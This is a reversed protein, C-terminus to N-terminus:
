AARPEAPGLRCGAYRPRANWGAGAHPASRAHRGAYRGAHWAYCRRAYRRSTPRQGPDPPGPHALGQRWGAHGGRRGTFVESLEKGDPGGGRRARATTEDVAPLRVAPDASPATDIGDIESLLSKLQDDTLDSLGGGFSVGSKARAAVPERTTAATTENAVTALTASPEVTTGAASQGATATPATPESRQWRAVALGCVVILSAAAALAWNGAVLRSRRAVRPKPLAAVIAAVNVEPLPVSAAATRILGVEAACDACANVHSQVRAEDVAPLAGHVFEPLQDRIDGAVCDRMM